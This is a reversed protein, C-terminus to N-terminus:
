RPVWKAGDWVATKGNVTSTTGVPRVPKPGGQQPVPMVQGTQNNFVMPPRTIPGEPTLEQGGHVFTYRDPSEKGSLDRIQQAILTREEPTKAAEYKLYLKEQREATRNQFGRLATESDARQQDIANTASFRANQGAEQMVSRQNAGEQSMQAETLRTTNNSDTTYRANAESEKDSAIGRMTNIQGITLQGNQAGRHATSAAKFAADREKDARSNDPIITVSPGSPQQQAAPFGSIPAVPAATGAQTIAQSPLVTFRSNNVPQGNITFGERINTGSFSNGVRKVDNDLPRQQEPTPTAAVPAPAAQAGPYRMGGSSEVAPTSAPVAKGPTAVPKPQVAQKLGLADRAGAQMERAGAGIDSFGQKVQDVTDLFRSPRSSSDADLLTDRANLATDVALDAPATFTGAAIKAAGKLGTGLGSLMSKKEDDVVGGDAFFQQPKFGEAMPEAGVPTHTADKIQDLAQVGIAHVQEPPLKYEGNSLNVPVSEPKFGMGGLNQEGIEQTSDAPMIYTGEPVETKISDSTGTGPGRVPGGNALGLEKMRRASEYGGAYETIPNQRTQPPRPPSAKNEVPEAPPETKKGFGIAAKVKEVVGGEAFNQAKRAGKKFGYM